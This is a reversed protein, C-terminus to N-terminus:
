AERLYGHHLFGHYKGQLISGAGASCTDGNKDVHVNGTRPDGHRVWCYHTRGSWRRTKGEGPVPIWQPRTCNSAEGDVSWASGNPLQVCLSIGDPGMMWECDHYWTADWMAGAPIDRLTYLQGDPAGRYLENHFLQWTDRKQFPYGCDCHTPWLPFDESPLDPDSDDGIGLHMARRDKFFVMHSHYGQPLPCESVEAPCYRRLWVRETGTPEIWFCKIPNGM